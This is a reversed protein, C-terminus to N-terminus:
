DLDGLTEGEVFGVVGTSSCDVASFFQEMNATKVSWPVDHAGRVHNMLRTPKGEVGHVLVSPVAVVSALDLHFKAVHCCMDCKIVRGCYVCPSPKTQRFRKKADARMMELDHQFWVMHRFVAPPWQERLVSLEPLSVLSEPVDGMDVITVDHFNQDLGWSDPVLVCISRVDRGQLIRSGTADPRRGVLGVVDPISGFPVVGESHIDVVAELADWLVYLEVGFTIGARDEVLAAGEMTKTWYLGVGWIFIECRTFCVCDTGCFLWGSACEAACYDNLCDLPAFFVLSGTM